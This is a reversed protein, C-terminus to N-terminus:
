PTLRLWSHVPTDIETQAGTDADVSWAKALPGVPVDRDRPRHEFIVLTRGDPAWTLDIDPRELDPWNRSLDPLDDVEPGVLRYGSGDADVIAARLARDRMMVVALRSGDPSWTPASVAAWGPDLTLQRVDTVAGDKDVDVINVQGVDDGRGSTFALAMGDPSWDLGQAELGEWELPPRTPGIASWLVNTADADAVFAALTDDRWGLYAIQRGGPGGGPRWAVPGSAVRTGLDKQRSGSGDAEIIKHEWTCGCRASLVSATLSRGDPAWSLHVGWGAVTAVETIDTGDLRVTMIRSDYWSSSERVFAVRDGQPAFAPGWDFFPGAVLPRPTGGLEDAIFLDGDREFVVAGNSFPSPTQRQQSGIYLSAAVLAVILSALTLIAVM